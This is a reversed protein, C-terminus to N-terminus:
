GGIGYMGSTAPCQPLFFGGHDERKGGMMGRIKKEIEEDTTAPRRLLQLFGESDEYALCDQVRGDTSLRVRNCQQCFPQSVPHILGIISNLEVIKFYEAPGRGLRPGYPLLTYKESLRERVWPAKLYSSGMDRGPGIPMLEIFRLILNQHAAFCVMDDIEIDNFGKLLVCNIKIPSFGAQQAAEIGSFVDQIKGWRTIQTFKNPDLTDLHINIRTLGAAKLEEAFDKLLIGNTTMLLDELDPIEKLMRILVPIEKRVLPEGGTLRVGKVGLRVFASVVRFIEEFSLIESHRRKIAGEVPMCYQCRLNCLDTVSLRLYEIKRQYADFLM